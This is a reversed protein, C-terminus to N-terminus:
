LGLEREIPKVEGEGAAAAEPHLMIDRALELLQVRERSERDMSRNKDEIGVQSDKMAAMKARTQADMIKAQVGMVDAQTDIQKGGGALGAHPSFAGSQIKAQIEAVKADAEKARSASDQQETQIKSMIQQLEPPPKAQASAPALFQQPNSWGIAQLAATDVAIPDYMSPNAAQLQKIAMIKMMRQGHSSTNPDAQPVLDYDELAQLFTAEDWQNAM